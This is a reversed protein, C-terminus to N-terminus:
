ASARTGPGASSARHHGVPQIRLHGPAHGPWLPRYFLCFVLGMAFNGIFPGFGQYLHYSGRLLASALFAATTTWGFKGFRDLLYGVM